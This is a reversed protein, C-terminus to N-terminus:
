SASAMAMMNQYELAAAIREEPTPMPEEPEKNVQAEIDALVLSAERTPDVGMADALSSLSQVTYITEGLADLILVVKLGTSLCPFHKKLVETTAVAGSPFLYTKKSDTAEDYLRVIKKNAM